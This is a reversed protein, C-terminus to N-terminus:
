QTITARKVWEMQTALPDTDQEGLYFTKKRKGLCGPTQLLYIALVAFILLTRPGKLESDASGYVSLREFSSRNASHGRQAYRSIFSPTFRGEPGDNVRLLATSSSRFRSNSACRTAPLGCVRIFDYPRSATGYASSLSSSHRSASRLPM